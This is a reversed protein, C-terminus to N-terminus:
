SDASQIFIGQLGVFVLALQEMSIHHREMDSDYKYNDFNLYPYLM